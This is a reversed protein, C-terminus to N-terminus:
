GYVDIHKFTLIVESCKDTLTVMKEDIDYSLYDGLLFSKIGDPFYANLVRAENGNEVYCDVFKLEDFDTIVTQKTIM